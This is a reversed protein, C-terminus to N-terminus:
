AEIYAIGYGSVLERIISREHWATATVPAVVDHEAQSWRAFRSTRAAWNAFPYM